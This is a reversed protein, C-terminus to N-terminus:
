GALWAILSVLSMAYGLGVVIVGAELEESQNEPFM